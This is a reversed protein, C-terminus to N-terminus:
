GRDRFGLEVLICPGGAIVDIGLEHCREIADDSEAGPQMWLRKIGAAHAQEVIRETIPPPTIISVGHVPEPLSALDPVCPLGEVEKLTPNVPIAHLRHQVYARLVKNGFKARDNSAGVVAFTRGALFEDVLTRTDM